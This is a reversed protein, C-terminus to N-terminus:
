NTTLSEHKIMLDSRGALVSADLKRNGMGCQGCAFAVSLQMCLAAFGERSECMPYTPDTLVAELTAFKSSDHM